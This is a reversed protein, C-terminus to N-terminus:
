IGSSGFGAGGRTHESGSKCEEEQQPNPSPSPVETFEAPAWSFFLRKNLRMCPSFYKFYSPFHAKHFFVIQCMRDGPNFEFSEKGYNVFSIKLKKHGWKRVEAIIGSSALGSRGVVVPVFDKNTKPRPSDQVFTGIGRPYFLMYGPAEVDYGIDRAYQPLCLFNQLPTQPHEYHFAMIYIALEYPLLTLNLAKSSVIIAKLEGRYGPDVLGIHCKVQRRSEGVILIGYSSCDTIRIGLPLALPTGPRLLIPNTNTLCLRSRDELNLIFKSESRMFTVKASEKPMSM